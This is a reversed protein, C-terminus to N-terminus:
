LIVHLCMESLFNSLVLPSIICSFVKPSNISLLLFTFFTLLVFSHLPNHEMIANDRYSFSSRIGSFIIASESKSLNPIKGYRISEALNKVTQGYIKRCETTGYVKRFQQIAWIAWLPIDPLDIEHIVRDTTGEDIHRFLAKIFTDLIREYEERHNIAITCGPLAILEDRARVNFWPYGAM